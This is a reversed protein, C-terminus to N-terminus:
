RRLLRKAKKPEARYATVLREGDCVLRKGRLREVQRRVAALAKLVQDCDKDRVFIGGEVETGITLALEVDSIALGRQAMRLAAHDSITLTM